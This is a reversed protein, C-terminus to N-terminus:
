CDASENEEGEEAPIWIEVSAGGAEGNFIHIKGSDGYWIRFRQIANTIGYHEEGNKDIFVKEEYIRRLVEEPYGNGNDELCIKVFERKGHLWSINLNIKVKNQSNAAYKLSNELFTHILLRPIKVQECDEEIYYKFDPSHLFRIRQIEMYNELFKLEELITVAQEHFRLTYRSYKVLGMTMVKAKDMKQTLILIYLVNLSNMFFHPNVQLQLYRLTAEQKSLKEEYVEVTLRNIQKVMFNFQEQIALFESFTQGLFLQSNLNGEGVKVMERVIKKIPKSIRENLIFCLVCAGAVTGIQFLIGVIVVKKFGSFLREKWLLGMLTFAGKSSSDKVIIYEKGNLMIEEEFDARKAEIDLLSIEETYIEDVGDSFFIYDFGDEAIDKLQDTFTNVCVYVGVTTRANRVLRVFYYKEDIKCINWNDYIFTDEQHLGEYVYSKLAMREKTSNGSSDNCLMLDNKENYILFGNMDRYLASLEKLSNSLAYSALELENADEKIEIAEINNDFILLNVLAKEVDDFEKDMQQMYFKVMIDSYDSVQRRIEKLATYNSVAIIIDVIIMMQILIILINKKLSGHEGRM